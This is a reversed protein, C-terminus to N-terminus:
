HRTPELELEIEFIVEYEPSPEVLHLRAPRTSRHARRARAVPGARPTRRHNM